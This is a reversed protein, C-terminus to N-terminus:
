KESITEKKLLAEIFFNIIDKFKKLTNLVEEPTTYTIPSHVFANLDLEKYYKQINTKYNNTFIPQYNNLIDEPVFGPAGIKKFCGILKNELGKIDQDFDEKDYEALFTRLSIEILTRICIISIIPHRIYTDAIGDIVDKIKMYKNLQQYNPFLKKVKNADNSHLARVTIHLNISICDDGNLYCYNITYYGPLNKNTFINKSINADESTIVIDDIDVNELSSKNVADPLYCTTGEEINMEEYSKKLAFSPIIDKVIITSAISMDGYTFTVQHIGSQSFSIRGESDINIGNMDDKVDIADMSLNTKIIDKYYFSNNLTLTKTDKKLEFCIPEPDNYNKIRIDISSFLGSVFYRMICMFKKQALNVLFDNRENSIKLSSTLEYYNKFSIYGYTNKLKYNTSKINQSIESHQLWDYNENLYNYMGYNNIYIRISCPYENIADNKNGRWIYYVGEFDDVVESYTQLIEWSKRLNPYNLKYKSVFNKISDYNQLEIEEKQINLINMINDEYSVILKDKSYKFSAKAVFYGKNGQALKNKRYVNDINTKPTLIKQVNDVYVEIKPITETDIYYNISSSYLKILEEEMTVLKINDSSIGNLIVETGRIEEDIRIEYEFASAGKNWKINYACKDIDSYTNIELSSCLNFATLLGLGKSGAYPEGIMSLTNDNMMKKSLGVSALDNIDQINLGIGNDKIKISQKQTNIDIRITDKKIKCADSANKILESLTVVPAFATALIEEFRGDAIKVEQKTM